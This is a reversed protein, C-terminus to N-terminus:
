SALGHVVRFRREGVGVAVDVHRLEVAVAGLRELARPVRADRVHQDDAAEVLLVALAAREFHRPREAQRRRGAHVRVLRPKPRRRHLVLQAPQRALLADARDALDTEVEV